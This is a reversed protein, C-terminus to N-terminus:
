AIEKLAQAPHGRAIHHTLSTLVDAVTRMAADRDSPADPGLSTFAGLESPELIAAYDVGPVGVSVQAAARPVASEGATIAITPACSLLASPPAADSASVYIILDATRDEIMPAAAYLSPDYYGRGGRFSLPTPRGTLGLAMRNLESQGPQAGVMLLTWRGEASLDEILGMLQIQELDSLAAGAFVAVGFKAAKLAAVHADLASIQEADLAVPKGGVRARLLGLTDAATRNGLAIETMDATAFAPEAAGLRTHTKDASLLRRVAEDTAAAEDFPGVWLLHDGRVHAETPSTGIYGVEQLPGLATPHATDLTLSAARALEVAAAAGSLDIADVILLPNSSNTIAMAIHGDTADAEAPAGNIWGM